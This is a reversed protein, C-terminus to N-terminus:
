QGSSSNDGITGDQRLKRYIKGNVIDSERVNEKRFHEFYKSKVLKQLQNKLPSYLFYGM